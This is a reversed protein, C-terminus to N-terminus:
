RLPLSWSDRAPSWCPDAAGPPAETQASSGSRLRTSRRPRAKLRRRLCRSRLPVSPARSANTLRRDSDPPEQAAQRSAAVSLRGGVDIARAMSSGAANAPGRRSPRLPLPRTDRRSVVARQSDPLSGRVGATPPQRAGAGPSGPCRCPVGSGIAQHPAFSLALGSPGPQLDPPGVRPRPPCRRKPQKARWRPQTLAEPVFVPLPARCRTRPRAHRQWAAQETPEMQQGAQAM